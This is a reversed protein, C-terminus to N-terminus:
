SETSKRPVYDTEAYLTRYNLTPQEIRSLLLQAASFGMIPAHIHVSTLPPKVLKSEPCDDFGCLYVDDPVSISLDEMVMMADFAIFDNACIFLDPLEDLKKIEKKLYTRYSVQPQNPLNKGNGTIFFKEDAQIGNLWLAERVGAYREYFSQCHTYEGIFGIRTKGKKIMENVVTFMHTKNNMYLCDANLPGNLPIVPTDAFLIPIDLNCLMKAYEYHFMEICLIGATRDLNLTPPLALLEPDDIIVRHMTLSYGVQSIEQQFRDLMFNAFHSNGLFTTSLLAIETKGDNAFQFNKNKEQTTAAVYSFQKYGMEAAKQLVKERTADALVGTNNIAKSVTNRSIGLADAIDQITVRNAM